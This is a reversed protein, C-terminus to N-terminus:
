GEGYYARNAYLTDVYEKVQAIKGDRVVFLWHYTNNYPRGDNFAGSTELEVAVREGEATIGHVTLALPATFVDTQTTVMEAVQDRTFTGGNRWDGQIWYTADPALMELAARIRGPDQSNMESFFRLVLAKNDEISMGAELPPRGARRLAM